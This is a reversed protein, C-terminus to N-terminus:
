FGIVPMGLGTGAASTPRAHATTPVFVFPGKPRVTLLSKPALQVSTGPTPIGSFPANSHTSKASLSWAIAVTLANGVEDYARTSISDDSPPRVHCGASKPLARAFTGAFEESSGTAAPFMTSSKSVIAMLSGDVAQFMSEEYECRANPPSGANADSSVASPM